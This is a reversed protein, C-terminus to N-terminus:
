QTNENANFTTNDFNVSDPYDHSINVAQFCELAKLSIAETPAAQMIDVICASTTKIREITEENDKQTINLISEM